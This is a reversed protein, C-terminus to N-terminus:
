WRTFLIYLYIIIIIKEVKLKQSKQSSQGGHIIYDNRGKLKDKNSGNTCANFGMSICTINKGQKAKVNM